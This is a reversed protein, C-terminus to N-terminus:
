RSSDCCRVGFSEDDAAPSRFDRFSCRSFVAWDKYSGGKLIRRKAPEGEKEGDQTRGAVWEAVNGNMDFVGEVTRCDPRSGSPEISETHINCADEQYTYGFSWEYNASCTCAREWEREACLRKGVSECHREAEEWTLSGDPMEDKENPFEYRDICFPKVYVMRRPAERRFWEEYCGGTAMSCIQNLYVAEEVSIGAIMSGGRIYVMGFSCVNIPEAREFVALISSLVILFFLLYRKKKM